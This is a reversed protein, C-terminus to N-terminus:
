SATEEEDLARVVTELELARSGKVLLVDGEHLEDRMAATAQEKSAFHRAGVMGAARASEAIRVALDGITLHNALSAM